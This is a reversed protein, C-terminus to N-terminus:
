FIIENWDIEGVLKPLQQGKKMGWISFKKRGVIIHYQNNKSDGKAIKRWNELDILSYHPIDEPHTHWEGYYAYIEESNNYLSTYFEIHGVDHRLFKTKKRIDKKMPVTVKDIVVNSNEVNEWGVLIGGAETDTYNWQIYQRMKQIVEDTIKITIANNEIVMVCVVSVTLM